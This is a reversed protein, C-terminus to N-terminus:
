IKKTIAVGDGIDLFVTKYEDNEKLFQIYKKIKNVLERTNRNAIELNSDVMGHFSLNDTVIVGGENLLPSFMNFFNIYQSKAADIFILDYKGTINVELADEHIINIQNNLNLAKINRLAEDYMKTDREITTIKIDDSVLAMMSASYGIATGIELINKINNEKIYNTLFKIGDDLMIPVRNLRAYEKIQEIRLHVM